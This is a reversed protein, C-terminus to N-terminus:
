STAYTDAVPSATPTSLIHTIDYTATFVESDGYEDKASFAKLTTTADLPITIAGSYLTSGSTPESGDLTYYIFSGEEASLSVSQVSTYSGSPVSATPTSLVHTVVYTASYVQSAEYGNGKYTFATITTTTDEGLIIPSSYVLSSTTPISGDLTYYIIAGEEASLNVDQSDYYNGGQILFIPSSLSINCWSLDLTASPCTKNTLTISDINSTDLSSLPHNEKIVNFNDQSVSLRKSEGKRIVDSFSGVYTLPQDDITSGTVSLTFNAFDLPTNNTLSLDIQKTIANITCSEVELYSNSCELTSAQRIVQSTSDLKTKASDKSFTLLSGVLITAVLIVLIISIIESIGRRSRFLKTVSM